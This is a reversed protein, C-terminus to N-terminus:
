IVRLLPLPAFFLLSNIFSVVKNRKIANYGIIHISETSKSAANTHLQIFFSIPFFLPLKRVETFTVMADACELAFFTERKKKKKEKVVKM